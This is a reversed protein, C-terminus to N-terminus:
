DRENEAEFVAEFFEIENDNNLARFMSEWCEPHTGSMLLERIQPTLEPWVDQILAGDRWKAIDESDLEVTSTKECLTCAPTVLQIRAM